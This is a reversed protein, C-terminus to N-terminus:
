AIVGDLTVPGDPIFVGGELGMTALLTHVVDRARPRRATPAGGEDRGTMTLGLPGIADDALDAVDLGGLARNTRIGGGALVVTNTPWHDCLHNKPWTRGFESTVMVLTEDLLSGGPRPTRKMEGLFRGLVEFIARVHLQQGAFDGGHTDIYADSIGALRATIATTLDSKLLRLALDLQPEWEMGDTADSAIEAGGMSYPRDAIFQYGPLPGEWGRTAELTSVVDAAITKSAIALGDYLEGLMRDQSPTAGRYRLTRRMALADMATLPMRSTGGAWAPVELEPRARLGDWIADDRDSFRLGLDGIGGIQVPAAVAPLDYSDPPPAHAIQVSPLIREPYTASANLAAWAPMSPAIYSGNPVGSLAAVLGSQHSATEQDVGHIVAVNEHLRHEDWSRGLSWMPGHPRPGLWTRPARLRPTGDDNPADGTGDLNGVESAEFFSPVGRANVPYFREIDPASLPTLFLEAMWGGPVYLVLLKKPGPGLARARRPRIGQLLATASIGGAAALKMWRRRNM